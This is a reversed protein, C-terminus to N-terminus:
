PRSITLWTGAKIGAVVSAAGDPWQVIVQELTAAVPLGFHLRTPDGSLYGSLVRVDRSFNGQSTVLTVRAGIADRNQAGLWQLDVQVSAGGCLQNEFLQAPSRLPNVVIDLDGDQDLDAMVMSRGSARSNLGWAPMAQFRRGQENRFVQNEEVLEHNPLHGFTGAEIMGNVVYLDLYGDNDLDGFKSSWSWGTAAVGWGQAAERWGGANNPTQLVNAMEQPDDRKHVIGREMNAIVPLWAAMTAPAIDYPNMDAAFLEPRGDNDLDGQDLSMTSYATVAFPEVAEWGTARNLWAQDRVAFDNGVLIDLRQDQNLDFLGLALAQAAQALQTPRFRGNDNTYVFVGGQQETLYTNGRDTLFGADYSATVLDLDGDNDLDGWNIVYAPNAVGPLVEKSFTQRGRNRWYNLAGTNTTLVLDRWGNGDVDLITIARTPGSSLETKSFTLAGENWFISNSGTESGLVLDLDGDNDLDNVAVGAGNAAFMRVVGDATTTLHDLPHYVFRDTCATPQNLPTVLVSGPISPTSLVQKAPFAPLSAQCGVLTNAVLSLGTVLVIILRRNTNM